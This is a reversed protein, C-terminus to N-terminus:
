AGDSDPLIDTELQHHHSKLLSGSVQTRLAQSDNHPKLKMNLRVSRAVFAKVARWTCGFAM